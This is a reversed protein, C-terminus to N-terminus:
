EAVLTMLELREGEEGGRRGKEIMLELREGEEGGSRGKEIMLEVREGEEREEGEEGGSRGKEIMLELREEEEGEEGGRRGKEIMLELREGEEGEEGGRRGKEIMLEVREGEEGGRRGKEIMLELREEEEREEGGSRGKEMRNSQRKVMLRGLTILITLSAALSLGSIFGLTITLTHPHLKVGDVRQPVVPLTLVPRPTTLPLASVNLTFRTRSFVTGSRGQLLCRYVGQDALTLQNLVVNSDPTVVLVQFEDESTVTHSSNSWSYHYDKPETILSHWPLFCDLVVQDGEEAEVHHDACDLPPTASLCTRQEYLCTDCNMVTQYLVCQLHNRNKGEKFFRALHKQLITLGKSLITMMDLHISNKGRESQWFRKFESHYETRARYLTTPGIVGQYPWSAEKFTVYGHDIVDRLDKKEQVSLVKQSLFFEDHIFVVVRDCQLCSQASNSACLVLLLFPLSHKRSWYMSSQRFLEPNTYSCSLLTRRILCLHCELPSTM